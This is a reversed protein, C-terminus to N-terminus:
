RGRGDFASDRCDPGFPPTYTVADCERCRHTRHHHIECSCVHSGVLVKGPGLDHGNPCVAPADEVWGKPTRRLSNHDM